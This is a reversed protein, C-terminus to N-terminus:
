LCGAVMKRLCGDIDDEADVVVLLWAEGPSYVIRKHFFSFIYKRKEPFFGKVVFHRSKKHPRLFRNEEVFRFNQFTKRLDTCLSVLFECLQGNQCHRSLFLATLRLSLFMIGNELTKTKKIGFFCVRPIKEIM